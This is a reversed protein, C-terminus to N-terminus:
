FLIMTVFLIKFKINFITNTRTKAIGEIGDKTGRGHM